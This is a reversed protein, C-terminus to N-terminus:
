LLDCKQLCFYVRKQFWHWWVQKIPALLVVIAAMPAITPMPGEPETNQEGNVESSLLCASFDMVTILQSRSKSLATNSGSNPAM